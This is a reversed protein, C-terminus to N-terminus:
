EEKPLRLEVTAGSWQNVQHVVNYIVEDDAKVKIRLGFPPADEPERLAPLKHPMLYIYAKINDCPETTLTVKRSAADEASAATIDDGVAALTSEKTTVSLQEGDANYAGCMVVINYRWLEAFNSRVLIQFKRNM